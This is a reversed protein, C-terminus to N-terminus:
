ARPEACPGFHGMAVGLSEEVQHSAAALFAFQGSANGLGDVDAPWRVDNPESILDDVSGFTRRRNRAATRSSRM